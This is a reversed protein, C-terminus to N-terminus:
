TIQLLVGGCYHHFAGSFFSGLRRFFLVLLQNLFPVPFSSLNALFDIFLPSLSSGLQGVFFVVLQNLLPTL